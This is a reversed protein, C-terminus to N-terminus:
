KENALIILLGISGILVGFSLLTLSFWGSRPILIGLIISVSLAAGLLAGVLLALATWPFHFSNSCSTSSM